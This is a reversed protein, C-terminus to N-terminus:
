LEAVRSDEVLESLESGCLLDFAACEDGGELFLAFVAFGHLDLM